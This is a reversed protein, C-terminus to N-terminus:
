FNDNSGCWQLYEDSFSANGHELSSVRAWFTLYKSHTQIVVLSFLDLSQPDRNSAIKVQQMKTDDLSM